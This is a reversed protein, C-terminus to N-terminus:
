FNYLVNKTFFNMESLTLLVDFFQIYPPDTVFKNIM